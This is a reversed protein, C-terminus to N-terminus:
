TQRPHYTWRTESPTDEITVGLNKLEERLRDAETWDRRKRADERQRMLAEVKKQMEAWWLM